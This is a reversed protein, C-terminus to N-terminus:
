YQLATPTPQTRRLVTGNGRITWGSKNSVDIETEVRYCGNVPFEIDSENPASALFAGLSASVDSSCDGAISPPVVLVTAAQASLALMSWGMATAAVLSVSTAVGCFRRVQM